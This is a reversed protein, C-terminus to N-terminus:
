SLNLINYFIYYGLTGNALVNGFPATGNTLCVPSNKISALQSIDVGGIEGEVSIILSSDGSDTLFDATINGSAKEDGAAAGAPSYQLYINGGDSYDENSFNYVAVFKSIVIASNPGPAGIVEVSAGNMSYIQAPNLTGSAISPGLLNLTTASVTLPIGDLQFSRGGSRNFNIANTAIQVPSNNGLGDQLNQLTTTLGQGNNTTTLLDGYSAAPSLNTLQTM